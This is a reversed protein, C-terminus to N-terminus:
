NRDSGPYVSELMEDSWGRSLVTEHDGSGPIAKRLVIEAKRSPRKGDQLPNRQAYTIQESNRWVPAGWLNYEGAKQWEQVDGTALTLVSVEGDVGGVVLRQEDPSVEFFILHKPMKDHNENPIMRVLTAQRALDLAFLQEHEDTPFDKGAVPLTVEVASFLIRGDRLCRVRGTNQFFMGALEEAAGSIRTQGKDDMVERRVLTALQIDKKAGQGSAQMYVLSRGDSTWDPYAASHEAVKASGPTDIRVLLLLFDDDDGPAADTTFAVGRDGPSVRIDEIKELGEHLIAGPKIQGDVMGAMMLDSIDAEKSKIDKWEDASVKARLADGHNERLFIKLAAQDKKKGSDTSLVGWQGGKELQMWVAEAEAAIKGARESGLSQAISAWNGVQQERAVVLRQSDSLWAAAYVGPMLLPTLKGDPDCFHLGEKAIVAARNGDPSWIVHKELCGALPLLLIAATLIAPWVGIRFATKM